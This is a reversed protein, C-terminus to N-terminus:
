AAQKPPPSAGPAFVRVRKIGHESTDLIEIPYDAEEHPTAGLRALFGDVDATHLVFEARGNWTLIVIALRREAM